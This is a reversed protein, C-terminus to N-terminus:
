RTPGYIADALAAWGGTAFEPALGEGGVSRDPLVYADAQRKRAALVERLGSEVLERLTTGEAAAWARARKLLGDAIEITTKM